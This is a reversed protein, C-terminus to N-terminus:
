RDGSTKEHTNGNRSSNLGPDSQVDGLKAGSCTARGQAAVIFLFKRNGLMSGSCTLLRAARCLFCSCVILALLIGGRYERRPTASRAFAVGCDCRVRLSRGHQPSRQSLQARM